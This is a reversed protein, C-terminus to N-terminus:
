QIGKKQFFIGVVIYILGMGIIGFFIGYSDLLENVGSSV